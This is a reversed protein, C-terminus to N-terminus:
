GWAGCVGRGTGHWPVLGASGRPRGDVGTALRHLGPRTSLQGRLEARRTATLRDTDAIADKLQAFLRERIQRDREAAEPNFRVM